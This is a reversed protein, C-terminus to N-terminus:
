SSKKTSNKGVFRNIFCSTLIAFLLLISLFYLGSTIWAPANVVTRGKAKGRGALGAGTTTVKEEKKPGAEKQLEEKNNEVASKEFHRGTGGNQGNYLQSSSFPMALWHLFNTSAMSYVGFILVAAALVATLSRAFGGPMKIKNRFVAKISNFHLGFHIGTLVLAVASFFLHTTRWSLFFSFNLKGVLNLGSLLVMAYSILMLLSIVWTFRVRGSLGPSFLKRTVAAIWKRNLLMHLVLLVMLIFGGKKHFIPGSLRPSFLLPLLLLMVVDLGIKIKHTKM